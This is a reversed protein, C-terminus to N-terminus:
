NYNISKLFMPILVFILILLQLKIFIYIIGLMYKQSGTIPVYIMKGFDMIVIIIRISPLLTLASIIVYIRDSRATQLVLSSYYIYPFFDNQKDWKTSILSLLYEDNYIKQAGWLLCNPKWKKAQMSCCRKNKIKGNHPPTRHGYIIM